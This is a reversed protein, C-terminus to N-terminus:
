CISSPIRYQEEATDTVTVATGHHNVTKIYSTEPLNNSINVFMNTLVLMCTINVTIVAEFFFEKTM